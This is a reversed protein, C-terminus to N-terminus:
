LVATVDALNSTHDSQWYLCVLENKVSMWEVGAWGDISRTSVTM